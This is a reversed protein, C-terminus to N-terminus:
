RRGVSAVPVRDNLQNVLPSAPFLKGEFSRESPIHIREVLAKVVQQLGGGAGERLPSKV